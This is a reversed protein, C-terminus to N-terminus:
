NLNNKVKPSNTFYDEHSEGLVNDWKEGPATYEDYIVYGLECDLKTPNITSYNGLKMISNHEQSAEGSPAFTSHGGEHGILNKYNPYSLDKKIKISSNYIEGEGSNTGTTGSYNLNLDKKVHIWGNEGSHSSGDYNKEVVLNNGSIKDGTYCGINERLIIELENQEESTFTGNESAGYILVGKFGGAVNNYKNELDWKTIGVDGNVEQAFNRFDEKSVGANYLEDSMRHSRALIGSSSELPLNIIRSFDRENNEYQVFEALLQGEVSEDVQFDFNGNADTEVQGLYNELSVSEKYLNIKGKTGSNTIKDEHVGSYNRHNPAEVNIDLTKTVFGGEESGAIIELQSLGYVGEKPKVNLVYGDMSVELNSCNAELSFNSDEPNKDTIRGEFNLNLEDNYRLSNELGNLNIEPNYNPIVIEKESIFEGSEASLEYTGKELNSYIGSYSSNITKGLSPIEYGDKYVTLYANGINNLDVGYNIDVDNQLSAELTLSREVPRPDPEPTPLDEEACSSILSSGVIFGSLLKKGLGGFVSKKM